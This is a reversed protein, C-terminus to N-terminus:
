FLNLCLDKPKPREHMMKYYIEHSIERISQPYGKVGAEKMEDAYIPNVLYEVHRFLIVLVTPNLMKMLENNSFVTRKSAISRLHNIDTVHESKEAVGVCEISMRDKSRYFLILDGPCIKKIKSNSIYAKKITNGQPNYLKWNKSHIGRAIISTDAFLDDHYQPQIPIIFKKVSHDDIFNPYYKIAIELPHLIPM